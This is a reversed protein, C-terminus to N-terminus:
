AKRVPAGGRTTTTVAASRWLLSACFAALGSMVVMEGFDEVFALVYRAGEVMRDLLDIFVGFVGLLAIGVLMFRGLKKVDVPARMYGLALISGFVAVPLVLSSIEGIDVTRVGLLGAMWSLDVYEVITAGVREHYKFADDIFLFAFLASFGLYLGHRTRMWLGLCFVGALIEKGYQYLEPVSGDKRINFPGGYQESLFGLAADGAVLIAVYLWPSRVRWSLLLLVAIAMLVHLAIVLRDALALYYALPHDAKNKLVQNLATWSADHYMQTMLRHSLWTSLAWTLGFACL